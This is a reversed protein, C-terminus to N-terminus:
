IPLAHLLRAAPSFGWAEVLAETNSLLNGHTLMIGKPTGTTGSSYLLAALDDRGRPVGAFAADSAAALAALSGAGAADLTLVHGAGAREALPRLLALKGPDCVVVAPAADVLFFELEASQYATNLPHFVFGGRLCAMYLALCEPSKDVQVSVRDGPRVGLGELAGALRGSLEDVDRCSWSRGDGTALLEADPRRALQGAFRSYLNFDASTM